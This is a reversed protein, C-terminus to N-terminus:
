EEFLAQLPAAPQPESDEAIQSVAQALQEDSLTALQRERQATTPFRHAEQFAAFGIGLVLVAAAASAWRRLALGSWWNEPADLRAYIRRRQAALFEFDVDEDTKHRRDVSNRSAQMAALRHSCERCHPLHDNEPGVGYLEAILQEDTWHDSLKSGINM